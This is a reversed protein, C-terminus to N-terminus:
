YFISFLLFKSGIKDIGNVNKIKSVIEEFDTILQNDVKRNFQQYGRAFSFGNQKVEKLFNELQSVNNNHQYQINDFTRNFIQKFNRFFKESNNLIILFQDKKV